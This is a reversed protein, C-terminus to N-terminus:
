RPAGQIETLSLDDLWITGKTPEDYSFKPTRKVTLLLLKTDSPATFDFAMRQWDQTGAPVADSSAVPTSGNGHVIVVRPGEPTELKRTKVFCEFRYRGGPRVVIYQKVESDLVTTDVGRFDIKLARSGTRAAGADVSIHAYKNSALNWNFQNFVGVPDKEFSGNWVPAREAEPEGGVLDVWLGRAEGYYGAQIMNTLFYTADHLALRSQRDIGRFVRSSEDLRGQQLLFTALALQARPVEGTAAKVANLDGGSVHWLLQYTQTLLRPDAASAARFHTAAEGLKNERVLLNALRWHVQTYNPALQLAAKLEKEAAARDGGLEHASALLLRQKYDWPSLRVARLAAAEARAATQAHDGADTMEAEALLGQLTPSSRYYDASAVLEGKTAAFQAEGFQRVIFQSIVLYGLLVAAAFGGATILVRLAPSSLRYNVELM